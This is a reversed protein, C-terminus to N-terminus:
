AVNRHPYKRRSAGLRHYVAAAPRDTAIGGASGRNENGSTKMHTPASWISMIWKIEKGKRDAVEQMLRVENEWRSMPVYHGPNFGNVRFVTFNLTDLIYECFAEDQVFQDWWVTPGAGFAGYGEWTQYKQSYDLSLSLPFTYGSQIFLVILAIWLRKSHAM